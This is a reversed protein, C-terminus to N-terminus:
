KKKKMENKMAEKDLNEAVRFQVIRSILDYPIPKNAPFQIAGKSTNYAHLEEEFHSVGSPGPYFGYHKQAVAFHVLNGYLFFTPMGYSMKETAEPAAMQITGRITELIERVEAPFGAIYEDINRTQDQKMQM